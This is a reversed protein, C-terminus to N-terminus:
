MAPSAGQYQADGFALIPLFIFPLLILGIAYGAGKGFVKALEVYLLISVIFNVCPILMLVFWVPSKGCVEVLVWINYFPIIAAWGPKGAKTFIKWMCAIILVLFAIQFLMAVIGGGAAAAAAAGDADQQAVLVSQFIDHTM